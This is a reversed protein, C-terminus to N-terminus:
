VQPESPNENQKLSFGEIDYRVIHRNRWVPKFVFGKKEMNVKHAYVSSPTISLVGAAELL